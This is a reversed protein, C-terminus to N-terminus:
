KCAMASAFSQRGEHPGIDRATLRDDQLQVAMLRSWDSTALVMEPRGGCTRIGGAIDEEGIRHNTLGKYSTVKSLTGQRYRWVQLRKALHPRDVYAVEFLGDGDLDAAGVPALWRKRRAIYPTSVPDLGDLTRFIMLRAGQEFSSQVVVIEPIGDGDLDAVRPAIDEFIHAAQVFSTAGPKGDQRAQGAPGWFVTLEHWEPTDGLVGHGYVASGPVVEFCVKRIHAGDGPTCAALGPTAAAGGAVCCVMLVARRISGALARGPLRRAGASM